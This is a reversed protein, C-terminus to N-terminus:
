HSFRGGPGDPGARHRMAVSARTFRYANVSTTTSSEVPQPFAKRAVSAPMADLPAGDSNAMDTGVGPDIWARRATAPPM